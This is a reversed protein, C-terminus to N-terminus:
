KKIYNFKISSKNTQMKIKNEIHRSANSVDSTYINVESLNKCYCFVDDGISTVSEPITITTLNSCKLFAYNGISAVGEPITVTTLNTCDSSAM